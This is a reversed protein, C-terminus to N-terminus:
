ALLFKPASLEPTRATLMKFRLTFITTQKWKEMLSAGRLRM